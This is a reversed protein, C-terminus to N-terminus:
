KDGCKDAHMGAERELIFIEKELLVYEKKKKDLLTHTLLSKELIGKPTLVYENRTKQSNKKSKVPKILGQGILSILLYYASGNSIEIKKAIQRSTM